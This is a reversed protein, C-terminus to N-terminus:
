LEPSVGKYCATLSGFAMGAVLCVKFVTGLCRAVASGGNMKNLMFRTPSDTLLNELSRAIEAPSGASFAQTIRSSLDVREATEDLLLSIDQPPVGLTALCDDAPRGPLFGTDPLANRLPRVDLTEVGPAQAAELDQWFNEEAKMSVLFDLVDRPTTVPRGIAAERDAGYRALVDAFSEQTQNTSM